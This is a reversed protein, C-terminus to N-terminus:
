AQELTEAHRYRISSVSYIFRLNRQLDSEENGSQVMTWLSVGEFETGTTEYTSKGHVLHLPYLLLCSRTGVKM